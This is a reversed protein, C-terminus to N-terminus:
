WCMMNLIVDPRAKSEHWNAKVLEASVASQLNNEQIDNLFQKSDDKDNEVWTFTKYNDFNVSEDKEIHAISSCGVLLFGIGALMPILSFKKM